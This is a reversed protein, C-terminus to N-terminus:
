FTLQYAKEHLARGETIFQQKQENINTAIVILKDTSKALSIAPILAALTKGTGCAGELLYIKGGDLADYIKRMAAEQEKYPAYPCYENPDFSM